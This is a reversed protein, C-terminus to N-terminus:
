QRRKWEPGDEKGFVVTIPHFLAEVGYAICQLGAVIMGLATTTYRIPNEWEVHVNNNKLM